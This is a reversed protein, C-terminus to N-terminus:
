SQVGSNQVTKPKQKMKPACEKATSTVSDTIQVVREDLVKSKEVRQLRDALLIQYKESDVKKLNVKRVNVKPCLINVKSTPIHIMDTTVANRPSTNPTADINVCIKNVFNTNSSIIYDIVSKGKGHM